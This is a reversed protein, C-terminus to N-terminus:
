VPQTGGIPHASAGDLPLFRAAKRFRVAFEYPPAQRARTIVGEFRVTIVRENPDRFHALLTVAENASMPRDLCFRAGRVGIDCLRGIQSEQNGAAGRPCVTVPSEIAYREHRRM